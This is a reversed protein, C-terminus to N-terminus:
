LYMLFTLSAECPQTVSSYALTYNAVSSVSLVSTFINTETGEAIKAALKPSGDERRIKLAGPHESLRLLQVTIQGRFIRGARVRM